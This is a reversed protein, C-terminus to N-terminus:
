EGERERRIAALADDVRCCVRNPNYSGGHKPIHQKAQQLAGEAQELLARLRTAEDHMADLARVIDGARLNGLVRADPEWSRACVEVAALVIDPSANDTAVVCLTPKDAPM